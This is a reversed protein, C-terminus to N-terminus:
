PLPDIDPTTEGLRNPILLFQGPELLASSSVPQLSTIEGPSVMFRGAILQLTDGAQTTYM